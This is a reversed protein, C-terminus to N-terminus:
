TLLRFCSNVDSPSVKKGVRDILVHVGGNICQRILEVALYSAMLVLECTMALVAAGLGEIRDSESM